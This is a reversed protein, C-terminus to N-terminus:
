ICGAVNFPTISFLCNLHRSKEETATEANGGDGFGVRQELGQSTWTYVQVKMQLWLIKETISFLFLGVQLRTQIAVFTLDDCM